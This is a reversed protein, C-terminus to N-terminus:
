DVLSKMVKLNEDFIVPLFYKYNEKKLFFFLIFNAIIKESSKNDFIFQQKFCYFIM